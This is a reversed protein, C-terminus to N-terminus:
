TSGALLKGVLTSGPTYRSVWELNRRHWVNAWIEGKVYELENIEM